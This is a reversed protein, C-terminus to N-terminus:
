ALFASLVRPRYNMDVVLGDEMRGCLAILEDVKAVIRLQEKLPTLPIALARLMGQNIKPMAKQAGTAVTSLYRRSYPGISAFHIFRLRVQGSPRVRMMLDPYIFQGSPGDYIAAIGVYERTNGRQFLLDDLHLWLDSDVDVDAEVRKFHSCDFFGSTTAILTIAKPADSRESKRLSLGHQPGSDVVDGLSAWVWIPPM